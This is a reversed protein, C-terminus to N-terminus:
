GNAVTRGRPSRLRASRAGDRDHEHDLLARAGVDLADIDAAVGAGAVIHDTALEVDGFAIGVVARQDIAGLPAQLVEVVELGHLDGVLRARRGIADNTLTSRRSFDVPSKETTPRSSSRAVAEQTFDADGFAVQHAATVISFRRTLQSTCSSRSNATM